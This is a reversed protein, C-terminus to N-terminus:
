QQSQSKQLASRVRTPFTKVAHGMDKINQRWQRPPDPYIGRRIMALRIPDNKWSNVAYTYRDTLFHVLPERNYNNTWWDRLGRRRPADSVDSLGIAMPEVLGSTGYTALQDPQPNPPVYPFPATPPPLNNEDSFSASTDAESNAAPLNHAEESSNQLKPAESAGFKELLGNWHSRLASLTVDKIQGMDLPQGGNKQLAQMYARQGDHLLREGEVLVLIAAGLEVSRKVWPKEWIDKLRNGANEVSKGLQGAHLATLGDPPSRFGGERVQM